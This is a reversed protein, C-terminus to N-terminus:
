WNIELISTAHHWFMLLSFFLGVAILLMAARPKQYFALVFVITFILFLSAMM